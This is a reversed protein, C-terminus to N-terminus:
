QKGYVANKMSKCLAKRDKGGNKEIETKKHTLNSM